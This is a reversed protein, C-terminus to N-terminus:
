PLHLDESRPGHARRVEDVDDESGTVLLDAYERSQETVTAGFELIALTADLDQEIRAIDQHVLVYPIMATVVLIALAIVFPIVLLMSQMRLTIKM